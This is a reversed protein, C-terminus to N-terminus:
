AALAIHGIQGLKHLGLPLRKRLFHTLIPWVPRMIKKKFFYHGGRPGSFHFQYFDLELRALELNQDPMSFMVFEKSEKPEKTKFYKCADGPRFAIDLGKAFIIGNTSCMLAMLAM